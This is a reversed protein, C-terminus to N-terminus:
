QSSVCVRNRENATQTNEGNVCIKCIKTFMVQLQLKRQVTNAKISYGQKVNVDADSCLSLKHM